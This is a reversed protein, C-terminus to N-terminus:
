GGESACSACLATYPLASLRKLEIEENCLECQTYVGQKIRLIAHQVQQLEQQTQMAIAEAVEENELEQARDESDKSVEMGERTLEASLKTAREELEQQKNKLLSDVRLIDIM